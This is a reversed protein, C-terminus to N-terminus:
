LIGIKGDIKYGCASLFKQVTDLVSALSLDVGQLTLNVREMCPIGDVTKGANSYMELSFHRSTDSTGTAETSELMM